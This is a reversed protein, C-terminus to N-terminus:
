GRTMVERPTIAYAQRFCRSFHSSDSFGCAMAVDTVSMHRASAVQLMARAAELREAKILGQLTTGEGRFVKHLYNLSLGAEEAVDALTLDFNALQRRVITRVRAVIADRGSPAQELSDDSGAQNALVLEAIIRVSRLFEAPSLTWARQAFLRIMDITLADFGGSGRRMCLRKPNVVRRNVFEAPLLLSVVESTEEGNRCQMVYPESTCFFMAEGPRVVLERGMHSLRREGRLPLSLIFRERNDSAVTERDRMESEAWEPIREGSASSHILTFGEASYARNLGNRWIPAGARHAMRLRYVNRHAFANNEDLADAGWATWALEQVQAADLIGM